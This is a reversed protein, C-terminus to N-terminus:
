WGCGVVELVLWRWSWGGGRGVVLLILGRGRIPDHGGRRDVGGNEGHRVKVVTFCIQKYDWFLPGNCIQHLCM